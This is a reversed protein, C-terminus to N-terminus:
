ALGELVASADAVTRTMPGVHDFSPALAIVGDIPVRGHTAKITSTGCLASPIRLSGLTDTGLAAPLMRAALAAGSGGSSGGASREPAWPNGVQDTTGGAAFEHTHAHGVLVMGCERLRAWAVSDTDAVHDALVRSSATLPLGAAAYLDKLALPVGCLLPADGRVLREDAARAHEAALEPYLRACASPAGPAGGGAGGAPRAHTNPPWNRISAPSRTSRM